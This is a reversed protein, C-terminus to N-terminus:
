MGFFNSLDQQPARFSAIYCTPQFCQSTPLCILLVTKRARERGLRQVACSISGDLWLGGRLNNVNRYQLLIYLKKKHGKEKLLPSSKFSFNM